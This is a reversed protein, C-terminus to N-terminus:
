NIEIMEFTVLEFDDLNIEPPLPNYTQHYHKLGDMTAEIPRPDPLEHTFLINKGGIYDISVFEKPERKTRLAKFKM